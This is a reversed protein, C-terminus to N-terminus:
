VDNNLSTWRWDLINGDGILKLFTRVLVATCAVSLAAADPWFQAGDTDKVIVGLLHSDLM